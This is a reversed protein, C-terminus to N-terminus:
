NKDNKIKLKNNKSTSPRGKKWPATPIDRLLKEEKTIENFYWSKGTASAHRKILIKKRTEEDLKSLNAQRADISKKIINKKEVDTMKKYKQISANIINERWKNIKDTDSLFSKKYKEYIEKKKEQSHKSKAKSIKDGIEKREDISKNAWM